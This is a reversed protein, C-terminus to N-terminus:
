LKKRPTVTKPDNFPHYKQYYEKSCVHVSTILFESTAIDERISGNHITYSGTSAAARHGEHWYLYGKSEAALKLRTGFEPCSTAVKSIRGTLMRHVPIDGFGLQSPFYNFCQGARNYIQIINNKISIHWVGGANNNALNFIVNILEDQNSNPHQKLLQLIREAETTKPISFFLKYVVYIILAYMAFEYLFEM